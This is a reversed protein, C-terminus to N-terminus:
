HRVTTHPITQENHKDGVFGEQRKAEIEVEILISSVAFNPVTCVLIGVSLDCFVFRKM